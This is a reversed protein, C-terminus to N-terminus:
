VIIDVVVTYTNITTCTYSVMPHTRLTIIHIGSHTACSFGYLQVLAIGHDGTGTSCNGQTMATSVEFASSINM